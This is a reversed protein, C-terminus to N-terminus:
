KALAAEIAKVVEAALAQSGAATYHVDKPKGGMAARNQATGVFACLDDVPVGEARMVRLAAANYKAEEGPVRGKVGEPVPTTSCWILKAGTKKLRQALTKLNPEYQEVPVWQRGKSVDTMKTQADIYKMDHLGWNFHIVDWTNSGLWADLKELGRVTSESNGPAHEVVVKNTLMEKVFPTYGISISDGIILVRPLSATSGAGQAREVGWAALAAGVFLTAWFRRTSQM